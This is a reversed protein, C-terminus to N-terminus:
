PLWQRSTPGVNDPPRRGRRANCSRHALALNDLSNTGGDAIATRHDLSPGLKHNGTLELDIPMDCLTCRTGDREALQLVAKRIERGTIRRVTEGTM